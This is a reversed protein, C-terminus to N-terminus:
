KEEVVDVPYQKALEKLQILTYDIVSNLYPFAHNVVEKIAEDKWGTLQAAQYAYAKTKDDVEKWEDSGMDLWSKASVRIGQSQVSGDLQSLLLEVLNM